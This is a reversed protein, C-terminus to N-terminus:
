RGLAAKLHLLVLPVRGRRAREPRGLARGRQGEVEVDEPRRSRPDPRPLPLDPLLSARLAADVRRAALLVLRADPRAGRLHLGGPLARPLDGRRRVARAAPRVAY